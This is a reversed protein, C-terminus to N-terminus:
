GIVEFQVFQTATQPKKGPLEDTVIIQLVYDGPTMQTGLSIARATKIHQMDTQGALDVPKPEGDLIMKGDRFVRIRMTLKPQKAADLRANYVEFGYRLVSGAPARRLATDAMVDNQKRPGDTTSFARWEDLSMNELVIGSITLKKKKIDPVDIFQSASGLAGGQSDRLAVRYQYAGAKKVPFTFHYVFGEKLLRAYRDPKLSLTYSRGLQDVPQGNDGFSVALVDFSTEKTGDAGDTFKLDSADVHLLSRVFPQNKEDSGFLANLRLTIGGIAFPSTLASSLQQVPTTGAVTAAPRERDAVNFFGSRYRAKSGKRLVKVELKNFRRRIPDFTDSDPDYGVLYYSQDEMVRRVAGPIDNNNVVAFGGTAAALFRPGDQTDQLEASRSSMVNSLTSPDSISDAATPGTYVLGRPDITYFVVSSRNATEVLQRLFDMVRGTSQFGNRDQEFLRFGDSFLIVSKRGPLERMGTVIYRLAGLTGTAFVSSRFEELNQIAEAMEVATADAGDNLLPENVADVPAFTGIKGTGLPNWKVKEIAAYLMRKDSTFQQLAGVGAGTRIIAVLDGEQMQEDVFKKLARRTHYASEWSLSLDDAVLAIARTVQDPRIPTTPPPPVANKDVAKPKETVVRGAAIFSFNTIKQKQGNEYIEIEDQRLDNVPKGNKDTVTVDIQILNTSIKVVQHEDPTPTPRPRPAAEQGFALSAILLILGAVVCCKKMHSNKSISVPANTIMYRKRNKPRLNKKSAFRSYGPRM